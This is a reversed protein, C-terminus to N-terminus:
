FSPDLSAEFSHLLARGPNCPKHMRWALLFEGIHIEGLLTTAQEQM